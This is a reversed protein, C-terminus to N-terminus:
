RGSRWQCKLFEPGNQWTSNEKLDEPTGGRTIIDAINLDGCIWWWDQVPAAKQIEGVRNAFFTKYGYSDRQIAGLVTQSDLLRLWREIKMRTHKEVYKRIFKVQGLQVYEEFLQIAEERLSESLPQDWTEQTLKGGGGEQFAKKVLIAGKQKAPTVLGIPDYLGAVQSLLARRTLPNPTETRVEEKLLDKGVRMKKRKSFNVSTLMYLKDEDMQYGIGLAKNDEDRMQNPLILTKGQKKILVETEM